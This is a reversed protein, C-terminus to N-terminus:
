KIQQELEEQSRSGCKAKRDSNWRWGQKGRQTQSKISYVKIDEARQERSQIVKWPRQLHSNNDAHSISIIDM